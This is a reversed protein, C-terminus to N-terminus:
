TVLPTTSSSRSPGERPAGRSYGCTPQFRRGARPGYRRDHWEIVGRYQRSRGDARRPRQDDAVIRRKRLAVRCASPKKSRQAAHNETSCPRSKRLLQEAATEVATLCCAIVSGFPQKRQFRQWQRRRRGHQNISFLGCGGSSGYPISVLVSLGESASTLDLTHQRMQQRRRQQADNASLRRDFPVVIM